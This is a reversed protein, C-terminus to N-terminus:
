SIPAVFIFNDYVKYSDVILPYSWLDAYIQMSTKEKNEAASTVDLEPEDTAECRPIDKAQAKLRSL